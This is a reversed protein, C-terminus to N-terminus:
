QLEKHKTTIIIQSPSIDKKWMNFRPDEPDVLPNDMPITIKRMIEDPDTLNEPNAHITLYVADTVAYVVRRTGKNTIGMFPGEISSSGENSIVETTGSILIFPHETNHHVTTFMSGAPAFAKRIYLGETFVHTLPIEVPPFTSLEYEMKDIPSSDEWDSVSPVKSQFIALEQSKKYENVLDINVHDRYNVLLEENPKIKNVSICYVSDDEFVFKCNPNVSHNIIRGCPFKNNKFSALWKTGINIKDLAFLGKGHISSDRIELGDSNENPNFYFNDDMLRNIEDNSLGLSDIFENFDNNDIISLDDM